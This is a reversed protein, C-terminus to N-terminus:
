WRARKKRTDVHIFGPYVGIGGFWLKKEAILKEIIAALRKPSYSKTTIDAAKAVLHLSAPKGGIRKNYEPHRYASNIRIPEKIHDRLIQLNDALLQVNAELERPVPTGDNCAFESLEFNTSLQM